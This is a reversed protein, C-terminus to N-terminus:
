CLAEKRKEFTDDMHLSQGIDIEGIRSFVVERFPWSVSLKGIFNQCPQVRVRLPLKNMQIWNYLRSKAPKEKTSAQYVNIVM